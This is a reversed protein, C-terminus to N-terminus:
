WDRGARRTAIQRLIGDENAYDHQIQLRPAYVHLSVAPDPGENDIRHVHDADFSRSTGPRHIQRTARVRGHAAAGEVLVGQLVVFAGASDGHDHWDTGQGPLWTLLWAELDEETLLRRYYRRDPDFDLYPRWRIPDAALRLAVPLPAPRLPPADPTVTSADTGGPSAAASHTTTPSPQRSPSM